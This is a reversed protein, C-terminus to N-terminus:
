FPQAEAFVAAARRFVSAGRCVSKEMGVMASLSDGASMLVCYAIIWTVSFWIQSKDYLKKLM